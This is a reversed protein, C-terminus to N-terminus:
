NCALFYCKTDNQACQLGGFSGYEFNPVKSIEQIFIRLFEKFFDPIAM